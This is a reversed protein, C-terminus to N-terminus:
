RGSRHHHHKNPHRKKSPPKPFHVPPNSPGEVVATGPVVEEPAPAPGQCEDGNCEAASASFPSPAVLPPTGLLALGVLLLVLFPRAQGRARRSEIGRGKANM